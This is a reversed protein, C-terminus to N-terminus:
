KPIEIEGKYRMIGGINKANEYGLRKLIYVASSSRSGSHCYAYIKTKKDKIKNEVKHQIEDLPINLSGPITGERFEEYTRVDLLVAYKEDKYQQIEQNIDLIGLFRFLSM